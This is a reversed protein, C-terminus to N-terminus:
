KSKKRIIVLLIGGLILLSATVLRISINEQAFVLGGIAAIVPVLLQLVASLTSSLKPVVAYWMAYGIASTIAGSTVALLIGTISIQFTFLLGFLLLVCFPLTKLFNGATDALPNKSGQGALTYMGWAVGSGTMLVLGTLSPANVGPLVLYIFGGFALGIGVSEMSTLKDGRLLSLTIITLQVAGFLILAGTATDLFNYAYSFAAAYFFLAFAASYSGQSRISPRHNSFFLLLQLVVIGSLLRLLTFSAADITPKSLAMRCLVSNGAFAILAATTLLIIKM